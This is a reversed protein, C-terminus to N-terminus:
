ILFWDYKEVRSQKKFQIFVPSVGDHCDPVTISIFFYRFLKHHWLKKARNEQKPRDTFLQLCNFSSSILNKKNPFFSTMQKNRFSFGVTVKKYLSSILFLWSISHIWQVQKNTESFLFYDRNLTQTEFECTHAM